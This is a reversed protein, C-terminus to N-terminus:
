LFLLQVNSIALRFIQGSNNQFGEINSNKEPNARLVASVGKKNKLHM